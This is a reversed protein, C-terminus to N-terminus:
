KFCSAAAAMGGAGLTAYGGICAACIAAGVGTEAAVCSGACASAILYAAPGGIGAVVALCSVTEGIGYTSVIPENPDVKSVALLDEDGMFKQTTTEDKTLEGNNYVRIRFNGNDAEDVLSESYKVTDGEKDTLITVNSTLSYEGTVPITVANLTEDESAITYVSAESVALDKVHISIEGSKIKALAADTAAKSQEPAPKIDLGHNKSAPCSQTPTNSDSPAADAAPSIISSLALSLLALGTAFRTKRSSTLSMFDGNRSMRFM